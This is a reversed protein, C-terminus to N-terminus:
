GLPQLHFGVASDIADLLEALRFPKTLYRYFGAKLGQDIHTQHADSSLAIVPIHATSVNNRLMRLAELGSIDSLRTNMVVVDPQDTTTMDVGLRGQTASMLTLDARRSILQTVLQLNAQDSAIVMVTRHPIPIAQCFM